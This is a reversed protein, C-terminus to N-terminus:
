HKFDCNKLLKKAKNASLNFSQWDSYQKLNENKIYLSDALVKANKADKTELEPLLNVLQPVAEYSLNALYYIDIKGTNEYRRINRNAILSDVNAFNIAIYAIISIILYYKPLSLKEYWVKILITFLLVSIYLMFSHTFVRLYTYGYMNEYLSMRFHASFLIICTCFILFSNLLKIVLTAKNKIKETFIINIILISLNILTVMLLEWFGRRAYEAYTFNAPLSSNISGFLYAFQIFIFLTYVICIMTLMTIVIIQDIQTKLKSECMSVMAKDHVKDMSLSWLYSFALLSIIIIIIVQSVFSNINLNAFLNGFSDLINKFVEDASALLEVIIFLLPLSIIIGKIVKNLTTHKGNAPRLNVMESIVKLPKFIYTFAGHLVGYIIDNLFRIDYWAYINKNATLITQAAILLPITFLNLCMFIPNTYLSYTLSLLLIFIVLIINIGFNKILKNKFCIFFLIYFAIVFITCSVAPIHKYFLMNFLLGLLISGILILIATNKPLNDRNLNLNDESM